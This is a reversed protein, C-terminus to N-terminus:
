QMTNPLFLAIDPFIYILTILVLIPAIFILAGKFIEGLKLDKAVGNLVFCNMGIPPSILALEIVLVIIVGFWILDFGLRELLPLIIPITVVMMALTDMVAGLLIYMLVILIFIMTASLDLSFLFDTLVYPLRTITLVYNLTFAALVIAFMFGTTKITEFFADVFTKKTLKGRLLSILFAGLAGVGASETATFLGFYLGGIVVIFLIFIWINSKLSRFREKWGVDRQSHTTVMDPKVLVCIAITLMFLLTLLIGPIIGATLLKGISQETIMGYIIFTTSPPILIGLTGGAVIAGGTLKKNYGANLMERSAIIGMTGTTAVSSGSAAAFMASSGITAFGLGGKIKGFWNQFTTFLEQSIGSVYLFQGMLIFLPITSLTYHFSQEWIVSNIFTILTESGRLYFIGICAPIAMSIAIPVRLFMLVFVAIIVFLGVLEVTM